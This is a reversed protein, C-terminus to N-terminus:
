ATPTADTTAGASPYAARLNLILVAVTVPLEFWFGGLYAIHVGSITNLASVLTTVLLAPTVAYLSLRYVAKFGLRPLGPLKLLLYSVLAAVLLAILGFAYIILLLLLMGVALMPLVYATLPAVKALIGKLKEETLTYSCPKGEECKLDSLPTVKIGNSDEMVFADRTVLVLTDHKKFAEVGFPAETDFVVLNRPEGDSDESRLKDPFPLAYPQPKNISVTGNDLTVELDDPYFDTVAGPLTRLVENIRPGAFLCFLATLIVSLLLALKFYYAFAGHREDARERYFSPDWVTSKITSFFSM